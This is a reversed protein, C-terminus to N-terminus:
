GRSRTALSPLGVDALVTALSARTSAGIPTAPFRVTAHEILGRAVLVEKHVAWAIGPQLGFVILPLLRSFGQRAADQEGSQWDRLVPALLDTFECAPMTGVAGHEYEDLVFQANLGGITAFGWDATAQAVAAIKPVTPPAEIKAADIGPVSALAAVVDTPISVGTIVPADQVMIPVAVAAALDAFFEPLASPAAKVMTPATVMLADAGHEQADLSQEITTATSTSSIGAVIPIAGGTADRVATLIRRREARTLAFGESAMGFVGVASAGAELQFQTIAHLGPLDLAGSADFPTALIPM